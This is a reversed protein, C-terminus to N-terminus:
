HGQMHVTAAMHDYPMHVYKLSKWPQLPLKKAALKWVPLFLREEDYDRALSVLRNLFLVNHEEAVRHGSPLVSSLIELSDKVPSTSWDEDQM